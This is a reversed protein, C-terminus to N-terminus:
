EIPVIRTTANGESDFDKDSFIYSRSCKFNVDITNHYPLTSDYLNNADLPRTGVALAINDLDVANLIALQQAMDRAKEIDLEGRDNAYEASGDAILDARTQVYAKGCYVNCYEFVMLCMLLSVVCFSIGLLAAGHGASWNIKRNM